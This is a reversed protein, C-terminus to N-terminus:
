VISCVENFADATDRAFADNEVAITWVEIQPTGRGAAHHVRQSLAKELAALQQENEATSEQNESM